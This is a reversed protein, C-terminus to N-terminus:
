QRGRLQQITICRELRDISEHFDGQLKLTTEYYRESDERMDRYLRKVWAILVCNVVLMVATSIGLPGSSALADILETV